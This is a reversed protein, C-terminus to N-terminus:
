QRPCVWASAYGMKVLRRRVFEQAAARGAFSGATVRYWLKDKIEVPVIRTQIGAANLRSSVQDAMSDDQSSAVCVTWQGPAPAAAEAAPPAQPAETAAPAEPVPAAAAPAPASPALPAEAPPPLPPASPAAPPAAPLPAPAPAPEAAPASPQGSQSPLAAPPLVSSSALPPGSGYPDPDHQIPEAPASEPAAAPLAVPQQPQYSGACGALTPLLLCACLLRANMAPM